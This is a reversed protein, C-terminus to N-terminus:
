LEIIKNWLDRNVPIGERLNKERIRIINEGPYRIEDEEKVPISKKLDDIINQVSNEISPYNKLRVPCIAMFVQSVGYEVKSKTVEHSAKGGSLVAALIDLLLSLGSGKWYGIPLARRSELVLSPDDTLNDGSDFGGPFPLKMNESRFVEMKGYSFQTMAFDLVIAEEKFPVAIVFPNNGIRADRAGWAPMNAETNTWAILIHGKKSAQWGYTGGRMWHNTNALGSLGIGNQAAIDIARDTAFVANLPGPGLNGDWQEIAGFSHVLSPVADANVYGDRVNGVFRLFRNVGHTYVGELTNIAFIESCKDAREDSFGYKILIRSFTDRLHDYKIRIPDQNVPQAIEM